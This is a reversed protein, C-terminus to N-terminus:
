HFFSLFNRSYNKDKLTTSNFEHLVIANPNLDNADLLPFNHKSSLLNLEQCYRKLEENIQKKNDEILRM